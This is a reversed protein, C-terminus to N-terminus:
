LLIHKMFVSGFNGWSKMVKGVNDKLETNNVKKGKAPAKLTDPKVDDVLVKTAFWTVHEHPLAIGLIMGPLGTFSEPGGPTVIMDTYFAVVYISDMIIANARRCDFGAINRTEDTIKWRINRVSDSVLYMQEFVKKQATSQQQQLNTYVINQDAPSERGKMNDPNEKGPKYFTTNGSFYLDFYDTRFKPTEKKQLEKWSNDEGSWMADMMAHMNQKKEFEIRGQKVFNAHQANVAFGSLILIYFFLQKM